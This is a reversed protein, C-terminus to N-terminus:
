DGPRNYTGSTGESSVRLNTTWTAGRDTSNAYFINWAGTRGDEWAAHVKGTGDIALDVMWQSTSGADDNIKHNTGWTAGNDTSFDWWALYVSSTGFTGVVAGLVGFGVNGPDQIPVWHNGDDDSWTLALINGEDWTAYLRGSSDFTISDKDVLGGFGQVYHVGGWDQGNTTNSVDLGSNCPPSSGS